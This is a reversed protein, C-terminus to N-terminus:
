PTIESVRYPGLGHYKLKRKPNRVSFLLALDGENLNKSKLNKEFWQKHWLKEFFDLKCCRAHQPREATFRGGVMGSHAQELVDLFENERVYRRM